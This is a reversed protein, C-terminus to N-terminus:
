EQAQGGGSWRRSRLRSGAWCRLPLLGRPNPAFGLRDIDPKVLAEALRRRSSKRARFDPQLRILPIRCIWTHQMPCPVTRDVLKVPQTTARRWILDFPIISFFRM